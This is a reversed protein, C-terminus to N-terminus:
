SAEWCWLAWFVWEGSQLPREWLGASGVESEEEPVDAAGGADLCWLLFVTM